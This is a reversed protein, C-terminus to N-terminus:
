REGRTARYVIITLVVSFPIALMQYWYFFPWGAVTPEEGNYIAPFLTAVLPLLLLLNWPSFNLRRGSADEAPAPEHGGASPHPHDHVAM